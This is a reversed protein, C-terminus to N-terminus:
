ATTVSLRRATLVPVAATNLSQAPNLQKELEVLKGMTMDDEFMKKIRAVNKSDDFFLQISRTSASDNIHHYADPFPQIHKIHCLTDNEKVFKLVTVDSVSLPVNSIIISSSM